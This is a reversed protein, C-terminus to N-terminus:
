CDQNKAEVLNMEATLVEDPTALGQDFKLRVSEMASQLDSEHTNLPNEEAVPLIALPRKEDSGNLVSIQASGTLLSGSNKSDDAFDPVDIRHRM